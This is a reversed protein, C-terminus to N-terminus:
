ETKISDRKTTDSSSIKFFNGFVGLYKEEGYFSYVSCVIYNSERRLGNIKAKYDFGLYERFERMSPNYLAFVVIVAGILFLTTKAKM